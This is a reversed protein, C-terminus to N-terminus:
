EKGQVIDLVLYNRGIWRCLLSDMESPSSCSSRIRRRWKHCSPRTRSISPPFSADYPHRLVSPDNASNQLRAAIEFVVPFSLVPFSKSSLFNLSRRFIECRFTPSFCKLPSPFIGLLARIFPSTAVIFCCCSHLM